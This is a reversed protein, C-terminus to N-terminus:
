IGKCIKHDQESINTKDASADSKNEQNSKDARSNRNKMAIATGTAALMAACIGTTIWPHKKVFNSINNFGSESLSKVTDKMQCCKEAISSKNGEGAATHTDVASASAMSSIGPLLTLAALLMSTMKSSFQKVINAGGVIKDINDNDIPEMKPTNISLELMEAVCNDFEDITISPDKKLFFKYVDDMTKKSLFEEIESITGNKENNKENSEENNEENKVMEELIKEVKNKNIKDTKNMKDM